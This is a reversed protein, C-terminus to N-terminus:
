RECHEPHLCWTIQSGRRRASSSAPYSSTRRSPGTSGRPESNLTSPQPSLASPKPSLASLQPSLASPCHNLCPSADQLAGSNGRVYDWASLYFPTSEEITPNRDVDAPSRAVAKLAKGVSRKHEAASEPPGIAMQVKHGKDVGDHALMYDISWKSLAPWDSGINTIICPQRPLAFDRIFRAYTLTAGDVVPLPLYGAGCAKVNEERRAQLVSHDVQGATM